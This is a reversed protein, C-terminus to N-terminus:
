VVIVKRYKDLAAKIDEDEMVKARYTVSADGLKASSLGPQQKRKNYAGKLLEWAAWEIDGAETDALYTSSNDFVYGATYTARYLKTGQIFEYPILTIIGTATEVFYDESDVTGWDDKNQRTGREQLITFTSIPYQKLVLHHTGTGDYEESTYTTSKFRRGCYNEIFETIQDILIAILTDDTSGSVGAYTKFRATTTLAYTKAM